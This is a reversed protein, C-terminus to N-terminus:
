KGFFNVIVTVLSAIVVMGGLTWGAMWKILEAKFDALDAKTAYHQLTLNLEERLESRSIPHEPQDHWLRRVVQRDNYWYCLVLSVHRGSKRGAIM